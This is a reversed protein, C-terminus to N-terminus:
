SLPQMTALGLPIIFKNILKKDKLAKVIYYYVSEINQNHRVIVHKVYKTSRPKSSPLIALFM